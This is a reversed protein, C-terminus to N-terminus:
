LADREFRDTIIEGASHIHHTIAARAEEADGAEITECIRQHEDALREFLRPNSLAATPLKRPVLILLREVTRTLVGIGAAALVAAHFTDNAAARAESYETRSPDKLSQETAERYQAQAARLRGIEEPTARRAATEAALGELEGRVLYADRVERATLRRVLMGRRPHVQVLGEAQLRRLAERVPQRSVGFREALAEQGLRSGAELEGELIAASISAALEDVVTRSSMLGM